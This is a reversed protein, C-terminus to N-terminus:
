TRYRAYEAPIHGGLTWQMPLSVERLVPIEVPKRDPRKFERMGVYQVITPLIKGPGFYRTRTTVFVTEQKVLSSGAEIMWEDRTPLPKELTAESIVYFDGEKPAMVGPVLVNVGLWFPLKLFQDKRWAPPRVEAFQSNDGLVFTRGRFNLEVDEAGAYIHPAKVPPSKACGAFTAVAIAFAFAIVAAATRM